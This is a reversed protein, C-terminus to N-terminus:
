RLQGEDVWETSLVALGTLELQNFMSMFGKNIHTAGEQLSLPWMVIGLILQAGTHRYSETGPRIPSLLSLHM